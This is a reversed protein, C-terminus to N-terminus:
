YGVTCLFAQLKKLDKPVPWQAVAEIKEPDTSVGRQSVVHRRYGVKTQLLECKALKM